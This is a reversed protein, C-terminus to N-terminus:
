WSENGLTKTALGREAQLYGRPGVTKEYQEQLSQISDGVLNIAEIGSEIGATDIIQEGLDSGLVKAKTNDWWESIKSYEKLGTKPNITGSGYKKAIAEGEKGYNDILYAELLNVHAPRGGVKRIETDGGRGYKANKQSIM